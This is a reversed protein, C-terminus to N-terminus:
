TWKIELIKLRDLTAQNWVMPELPWLAYSITPKRRMWEYLLCSFEVFFTEHMDIYIYKDRWRKV